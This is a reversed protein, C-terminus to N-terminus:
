LTRRIKIKKITLHLLGIMILLFSFSLTVWKFLTMFGAMVGIFTLKTPYALFFISVLTNELLDFLVSFLPFLLLKHKHKFPVFLSICTILFSGYVIPWAIDFRLRSIVYFNRGENGLTQALEYLWSSTYFLHTDPAQANNTMLAYNSAEHPLVIGMFLTMLLLSVFFAKFTIQDSLHKLFSMM